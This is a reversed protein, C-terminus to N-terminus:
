RFKEILTARIDDTVLFDPNKRLASRIGKPSRVEFIIIKKNQNQFKEVNNKEIAHNKFMFGDIKNLDIKSAIELNEASFYTKFQKEFFVDVWAENNTLILLQTKPYIQSTKIIQNCIESISVNKEECENYHRLDLILHKNELLKTNIHNLQTLKEKQFNAYNVLKLQNSTLSNICGSFNTKSNLNPDHYLWFKNDKSLQVDVEVGECGEISLALNIAENSNDHYLSTSINLGNGAHGIVITKNFDEKKKCSFLIIILLIISRM